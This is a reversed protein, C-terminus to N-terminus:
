LGLGGVQFGEETAIRFGTVVVAWFAFSAAFPLFFSVQDAMTAVSILKSPKLSTCDLFLVTIWAGPIPVFLAVEAGEVGWALM